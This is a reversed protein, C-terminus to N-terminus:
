SAPGLASVHINGSADVVLYKDGSAWTPTGAVHSTLTVAPSIALNGASTGIAPNGANAGTITVYRDASATHTIRVQETANTFISLPHATDTGIYGYGGSSAAFSVLVTGNYNVRLGTSSTDYIELKKGAPAVQGGLEITGSVTLKGSVTAAGSTTLTAHNASKGSYWLCRWNGSGESVFAATDGAVTTINAGGPLILTTANHTLTLAGDFRVWKWIGSSVTGFATITTTGTINVYNSAVAGLDVTAGSAATTPANALDQRVVKQLEQFNDALGGGITTADAPANSAATTSWTYLNGAVDAM